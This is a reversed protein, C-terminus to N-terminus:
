PTVTEVVPVDKPRRRTIRVIGEAVLVGVALWILAYTVLERPALREGLLLAVIVLLVPELYGLLGFLSFNLTRMAFFYLSFAMASILGLGPILALLRPIELTGALTTPGTLVFWAAAPILLHMELWSDGHRDIKFQRRSVFYAPYGLSVLVTPWALTGVRLFENAVGAAALCTAVVQWRSMRDGYLVRGVLVLILPMLFYGLTVEMARGHLPAWMFIWMQVGFMAANAIYVVLLGPRDGIRRLTARVQRWERTALLLLTVGPATFLLRWGFIEKGTLPTLLTAYYYLGAFIASAFLSALVGKLM